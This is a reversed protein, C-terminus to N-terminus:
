RHRQPQLGAAGHHQQETSCVHDPPMGPAATAACHNRQMESVAFLQAYLHM